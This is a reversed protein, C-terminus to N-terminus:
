FPICFRMSGCFFQAACLSLCLREAGGFDMHFDQGNQQYTQGARQFQQMTRRYEANDPDLQVAKRIQELALISNGLGHNSWASLYYWRGNRRTSIMTNLIQVAQQYQHRSIAMIVQQFEVCDDARAQPGTPSSDGYFSGFFDEFDFGGFDGTWGGSWGGTGQYTNGSSQRQQQGYSNQQQTRKAYKEPNVLMDYAENVESMKKNITPDNPHLDPHYEKAKRRYARKIEDQTANESVGLIKHPDQVAM